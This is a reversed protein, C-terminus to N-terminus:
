RAKEEKAFNGLISCIEGSKLGKALVRKQRSTSGSVLEVPTHFLRTLERLIEKNVKGREPRETSHVIIEDDEVLVEFKSLNPKVLIELIVGDKTETLRM